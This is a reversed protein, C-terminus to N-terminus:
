TRPGRRRLTSLPHGIASRIRTALPWLRDHTKIARKIRSSAANVAAPALGQLSAAQVHDYLELERDCWRDKYSEDGVTFDFEEVGHEFCWEFLHQLLSVGPSIRQIEGPAYSPFLFYFRKRFVLGWHGAVVEGDLTLASLHALGSEKSGKSLALCFDRYEPTAFLDRVGLERYSRSKQEFVVRLIAEIEADDTPVVFEVEGLEQLQKYKKRLRWRSKSSRRAALFSDYDGGELVTYHSSSPHHSESLSAFPNPQDGIYRPQSHFSIVDHRPLAKRVATWISQFGNADLREHLQRALLPAKYDAMPGGIWSLVRFPGRRRIALPLLMLPGWGPDSVVVICPRVRQADGIIRQWTSVFEYCQFPLCDAEGEFDRWIAEADDLSTYVTIEM